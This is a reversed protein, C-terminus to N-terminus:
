QLVLKRTIRKGSINWSIFYIGKQLDKINAVMSSNEDVKFRAVRDGIANHIDIIIEYAADNKFYLPGGTPNPYFSFGDDMNKESLDTCDSVKQNFMTASNCGNTSTASVMLNVASTPALTFTNPIPNNALSYSQGGSVTFNVVAGACAPNQSPQIFISPPPKVNVKCIATDTCGNADMGIITYSKNTLPMVTPSNGSYSYSLPPSPNIVFVDGACITPSTVTVTPNPNVTYIVPLRASVMTCTRAEAYYTYTGIPQPPLTYSSGIFLPTQSTLSSYWHITGGSGCSLTMNKLACSQYPSPTLNTPIGFTTQLIGFLYKTQNSSSYGHLLSLTDNFWMVCFVKNLGTSVIGTSGIPTDSSDARQWNLNGSPSIMGSYNWFKPYYPGPWANNDDGLFYV